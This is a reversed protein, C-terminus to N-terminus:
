GNGAVLRRGAPKGRPICTRLIEAAAHIENSFIAEARARIKQHPCKLTLVSVRRGKYSFRKNLTVSFSTVSGSGGAIKPVSVTTETGFGGKHIRKIKVVSIIAAPVPVTLFAYAYLTTVGRKVGGNVITLNSRVPVQTEVIDIELNMTGYGVIASKCSERPNPREITTHCVPIGRFNVAGNKDTDLIFERLAPPHTRDTTKVQGSFHLAIPTPVTKSLAKPAFGGNFTVELNSVPVTVPSEAGAARVLTLVILVSLVAGLAAGSSLQGRM